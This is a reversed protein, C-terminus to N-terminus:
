DARKKAVITTLGRHTSFFTPSVGHDELAQGVWRVPLVTKRYASKYLTWTEGNREHVLDHVVVGREDYELMCTFVSNEDSRVPIFRDLGELAGSLDRYSLAFVGGPELATSVDHFVQYVDSRAPLHTLTDGMCVCLAAKETCHQTFERIDCRVSQVDLGTSHARLEGLLAESTDIATVRYGLQALAISQSGSGAGLDIAHAGIGQDLSQEEFFQRSRAVAADLGGIMWTYHRALLADYHEAATTM